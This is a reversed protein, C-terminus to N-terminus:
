KALTNEIKLLLCYRFVDKINILYIFLTQKEFVKPVLVDGHVYICPNIM